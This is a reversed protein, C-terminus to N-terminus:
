ACARKRLAIVSKTYPLMALPGYQTVDAGSAFSAVSLSSKRQFLNVVELTAALAIDPFAAIVNDTSTGLGGTYTVQLVGRGFALLDDLTLAGSDPDDLPAYWSTTDMTTESGAFARTADWKVSAVSAIPYGRLPVTWGDEARSDIWHMPVDIREARAKQEVWRDLERELSATVVAILQDVLAQAEASLSGQDLMNRVREATTLYVAM